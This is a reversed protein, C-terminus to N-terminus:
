KNEFYQKIKKIFNEKTMFGVHRGVEKGNKIFIITPVGQIQFHDLLEPEEDGNLKAFQYKDGYKENLEKFIPALAKCPGCWDTYVDIIVPRPSDMVEQFNERTVHIIEYTDEKAPKKHSKARTEAMQNYVKKSMKYCQIGEQAMVFGTSIGMACFFITILKKM